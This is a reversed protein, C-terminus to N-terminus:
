KENQDDIFTVSLLDKPLSEIGLHLEIAEKLNASVEDLTRGQTVVAIAICEAM